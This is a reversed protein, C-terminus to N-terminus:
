SLDLEARLLVSKVALSISFFYSEPFYMATILWVPLFCVHQVLGREAAFCTHYIFIGVM